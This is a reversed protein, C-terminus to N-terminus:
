QSGRLKAVQFARSIDSPSVIGVVRSSGDVVVVRGDSCGHMDEVVRLLEDEPSVVPIEDPACAVDRLTAERRRDAPVTRIRRLTVLGTLHHQEDVLPYSPHERSSTLESVFEEVPQDPDAVTPDPSMVERVSVGRLAHSLRTQQEEATAAHVLIVGILVFWLGRWGCDMLVQAVGLGGLVFGFVRGGRTASVAARTRDGGLAWLAARLMRGGDLPAAPIVNFVALVVNAVALYTLSGVVLGTAGLASAGAAAIGFLAGALLSVLPGVGAIRFDAAPTSADGGLRTVGGFLWLTIGQVEIGNRRAVVAHALEHALLSAIFLVAVALAGAVHAVPSQDPYRSPFAGAALAVVIIAVIVLVSINAGVRVGAITGLRLTERM